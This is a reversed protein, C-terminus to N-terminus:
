NALSTEVFRGVAPAKMSLARGKAQLQLIEHRLERTDEGNHPGCCSWHVHRSPSLGQPPHVDTERLGTAVEGLSPSGELLEKQTRAPTPLESWAPIANGATELLTIAEDYWIARNFVGPVRVIVTILVLFGLALLDKRQVVTTM